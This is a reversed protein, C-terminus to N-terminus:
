IKSKVEPSDQKWYYNETIMPIKERKHPIIKLRRRNNSLEDLL